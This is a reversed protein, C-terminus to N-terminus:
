RSAEEWRKMFRGALRYVTNAAEADNAGIVDGLAEAQDALRRWMSGPQSSCRSSHAGISSWVEARSLQANMKEMDAKAVRTVSDVTDVEPVEGECGGCM